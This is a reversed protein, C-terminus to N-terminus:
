IAAESARANISRWNAVDRRRRRVSFEDTEGETLLSVIANSENLSSLQDEFLLRHLEHESAFVQCFIRYGNERRSLEFAAGSREITVSVVGRAIEFSAFALPKAKSPVLYGAFKSLIPSPAQNPQTSERM